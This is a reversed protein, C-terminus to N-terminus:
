VIPVLRDALIERIETKGSAGTVAEKTRKQYYFRWTNSKPNRFGAVTLETNKGALKEADSNPNYHKQKLVTLSQYNETPFAETQIRRKIEQQDIRQSANQYNLHSVKPNAGSGVVFSCGDLTPTFMFDAKDGLQTEYHRGNDWALYYAKIVHTHLGKGPDKFGSSGVGVTIDLGKRTAFLQLTYAKVPNGTADKFDLSTNEILDFEHIGDLAGGITAIHQQPNRVIVVNERLFQERQSIFKKNAGSSM